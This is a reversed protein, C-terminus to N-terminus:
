ASGSFTDRGILMWTGCLRTDSSTRNMIIVSDTMFMLINVDSINQSFPKDHNMGQHVIGRSNRSMIEAATFCVEYNIM